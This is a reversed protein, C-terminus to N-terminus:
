AEGPWDPLNYHIKYWEERTGTIRFQHRDNVDPCGMPIAPNYDDGLKLIRAVVVPAPMVMAIQKLFEARNSM